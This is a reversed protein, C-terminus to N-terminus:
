KYVNKWSIGFNWVVVEKLFRKLYHEVTASNFCYTIFCKPFCGRCKYWTAFVINSILVVFTSLSEIAIMTLRCCRPWNPRVSQFIHKCPVPSCHFTGTSSLRASVMSFCAVKSIRPECTEFFERGSLVVKRTEINPYTKNPQVVLFISSGSKYYDM